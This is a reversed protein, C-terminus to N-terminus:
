IATLNVYVLEMLLNKYFTIITIVNMVLTFMPIVTGVDQIIAYKANVLLMLCITALAILVLQQM